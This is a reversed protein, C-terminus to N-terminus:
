LVPSFPADGNVPAANPGGHSHMYSLMKGLDSVNNSAPLPALALTSLVGLAQGNSDLFASGSDGPIGPTATYLAHSWGEGPNQLVAGQKPSLPSLGARLSSNGYSYVSSGPAPTSPAVGVPGGWFPVSPDVNAADAPDLKVLAIDNYACANPDSEGNAQMTLWSNYALVGPKSAGGVEVPTGLPLSQASCGDTETSAGTGSCHAAQGIYTAGGDSFIFNATCQAGATYTMVGPHVAGTGVASASGAALPVVAASAAVTLGALLRATRNRAPSRRM